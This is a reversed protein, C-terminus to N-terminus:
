LECGSYLCNYIVKNVILNLETKHSELMSCKKYYWLVEDNLM